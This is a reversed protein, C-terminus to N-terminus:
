KALRLVNKAMDFILLSCDEAPLADNDGGGMNKKLQFSMDNVLQQAEAAANSEIFKKLTDKPLAEKWGDSFLVLRDSPELAIESPAPVHSSDRKLTETNTGSLWFSKKGQVYAQATGCNVYRMTYTKKDIVGYFVSLHDAEKMEDKLSGFLRTVIASPNASDNGGVGTIQMLTSLFKTSLAYSSSDSLLVGIFNKDAFEFVDFYDGGSKMGCWYKSKISLAGMVPFKDRILRRQIKQALLLDEQLKEVLGPIAVSSHELERLAKISEHLRIKSFFDLRRGPLIYLDDAIGDLFSQPLDHRDESICVYLSPRSGNPFSLKQMFSDEAFIIDFSKIAAYEAEVLQLEAKLEKAFIQISKKISESSVGIRIKETMM